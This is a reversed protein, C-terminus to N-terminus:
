FPSINSLNTQFEDTITISPLQFQLLLHTRMLSSSGHCLSPINACLTKKQPLIGIFLISMYVLVSHQDHFGLFHYTKFVLHDVTYTDCFPRINMPNISHRTRALM